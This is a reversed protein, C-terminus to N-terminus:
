TRECARHAGFVTSYAKLSEHDIYKNSSRDELMAPVLSYMYM